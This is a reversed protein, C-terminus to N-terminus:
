KEKKEKLNMIFRVPKKKSGKIRAEGSLEDLYIIEGYLKTGETKEEVFGNGIITYKLDKPNYILKDGKGQYFRGKTYVSFYVSGTAIFKKMERKGDKDPETTYVEIRQADIRDDNRKMKVNGTFITSGDKENLEFKAADIILKDAYISTIFFITLLIYRSLRM